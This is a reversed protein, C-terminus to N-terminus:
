STEVTTSPTPLEEEIKQKKDTPKPEVGSDCEVSDAEHLRKRVVKDSCVNSATENTSTPLDFLTKKFKVIIATM